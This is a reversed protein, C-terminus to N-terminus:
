ISAWDTIRYTTPRENEKGPQESKRRATTEKATEPASKPQESM